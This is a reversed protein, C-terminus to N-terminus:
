INGPQTKPHHIYIMLATHHVSLPTWGATHAEPPPSSSPATHLGPMELLAQTSSLEQHSPLLFFLLLWYSIAHSNECNHETPSLMQISALLM